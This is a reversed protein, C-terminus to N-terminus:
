KIRYTPYSQTIDENIGTILSGYGVIRGEENVWLAASYLANEKSQVFFVYAKCTEGTWSDGCYEGVEVSFMEKAPNIAQKSIIDYDSESYLSCVIEKADESNVINNSTSDDSFSSFVGLFLIIVACSILIKQKKTRSKWFKKVSTTINHLKEQVEYKKDIDHLKKEADQVAQNSVNKAKEINEANVTQSVLSKASEIVSSNTNKVKVPQSIKEFCNKCICSNNNVKGCFICTTERNGNLIQQLKNIYRQGLASKFRKKQTLASYIKNVANKDTYDLNANIQLILHLDAKLNEKNEDM